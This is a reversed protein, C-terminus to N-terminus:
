TDSHIAYQVSPTKALEQASHHLVDGAVITPAVDGGNTYVASWGGGGAGGGSGTNTGLGAVIIPVIAGKELFVTAEVTAGLGGPFGKFPIGGGQGGAVIFLYNSAIPAIFTQSPWLSAQATCRHKELAQVVNVLM